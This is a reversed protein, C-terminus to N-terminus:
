RDKLRKFIESLQEDEMVRDILDKSKAGLFREYEDSNLLGIYPKLKERIINILGYDRCAMKTRVDELQRIWFRNNSFDNILTDLENPQL